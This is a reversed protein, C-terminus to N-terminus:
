HDNKGCHLIYFHRLFRIIPVVQKSPQSRKQWWKGAAMLSASVKWSTALPSHKAKELAVMLEAGNFLWSWVKQKCLCGAPEISSDWESWLYHVCLHKMSYAKSRHSSPTKPALTTTCFNASQFCLSSQVPALNIGTNINIYDGMCCIDTRFIKPRMGCHLYRLSLAPYCQQSSSFNPM